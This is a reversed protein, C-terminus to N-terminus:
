GPHVHLPSESATTCPAIKLSSPTTLELRHRDLRSPNLDDAM